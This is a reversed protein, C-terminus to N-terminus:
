GHRGVSGAEGAADVVGGPLGAGREPGGDEARDGASGRRGCREHVAQV